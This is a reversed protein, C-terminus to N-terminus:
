IFIYTYIYLNFIPYFLTNMYRYLHLHTHPHVSWIQLAVCRQLPPRRAWKSQGTASGSLGFWYCSRRDSGETLIILAKRKSFHVFLNKRGFPESKLSLDLLWMAHLSYIPYLSNKYDRYVTATTEVTKKSYVVSRCRRYPHRDAVCSPVSM